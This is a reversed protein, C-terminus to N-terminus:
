LEYWKKKKFKEALLHASKSLNRSAHELSETRNELIAVQEGREMMKERLQDGTGLCSIEKKSTSSFKSSPMFTAHELSRTQSGERSRSKDFNNTSTDMSRYNRACRYKERAVRLRNQHELDKNSEVSTKFHSVGNDSSAPKVYGFSHRRKARYHEAPDLTRSRPRSCPSDGQAINLFTMQQAEGKAKVLQSHENWPLLRQLRTILSGHEKEEENELDDSHSVIVSCVSSSHRRAVPSFRSPSSSRSSSSISKREGVHKTESTGVSVNYRWCFHLCYSAKFNM